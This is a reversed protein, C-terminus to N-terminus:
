LLLSQKQVSQKYAPHPQVSSFYTNTYSARQKLTFVSFVFPKGDNDVVISM